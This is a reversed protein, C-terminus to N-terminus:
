ASLISQTASIATNDAPDSDSPQVNPAASAILYYNGPPVDSGVRVSLRVRRPRGPALNIPYGTIAVLTVDSPDLVRDTSTYLSLDVTGAAAANGLNKLLLTVSAPRGPRLLAPRSGFTLALDATPPPVEFVPGVATQTGIGVAALSGVPIVAGALEYTGPELTAPIKIRFRFTRSQGRALRLTRTLAALETASSLDIGSSNFSTSAVIRLEVQAHVAANGANAVTLTATAKQGTLVVSGLGSAHFASAVVNPPTATGNSSPPIIRLLETGSQVLVKGDPEVFISGSASAQPFPHLERGQQAFAPDIQGNPLYHVIALQSFQSVYGAALISGDPLIAAGYMSNTTPAGPNGPIGVNTTVTGSNGFALDIFGNGTLRQISWNGSGTGLLLVGGDPEPRPTGTHGTEVGGTGFTPDFAGASTFRVVFHIDVLGLQEDAGSGSVLIHGDPAVGFASPTSFILGPPQFQVTGGSGFTPDPTGDSQFRLLNPHDHVEDLDGIGYYDDALVLIKGDSMVAVGDIRTDRDLMITDRGSSGFTSDVTGDLNVRALLANIEPSISGNADVGQGVQVTGGVILRGDPQVAVADPTVGPGINITLTGATGYTPDVAGAPTLRTVNSGNLLYIRGASDIGVVGGATNASLAVQGAQGFAPDLSGAAGAAVASLLRRPELAEVLVDPDGPM